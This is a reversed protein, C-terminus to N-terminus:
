LAAAIAPKTFAVSYVPSPAFDENEYSELRRLIYMSNHRINWAFIDVFLRCQMEDFELRVATVDKKISGRRKGARVLHITRIDCDRGAFGNRSSLNLIADDDVVFAFLPDLGRFAALPARFIRQCGHEP